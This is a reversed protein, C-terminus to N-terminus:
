SEEEIIEGDEILEIRELRLLLPRAGRACRVERVGV